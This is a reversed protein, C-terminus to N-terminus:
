APLLPIISGGDPHSVWQCNTSLICLKILRRPQRFHSTVLPALQHSRGYAGEEDGLSKQPTASRDKGLSISDTVPQQRSKLAFPTAEGCRPESM